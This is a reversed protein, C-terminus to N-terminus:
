VVCMEGFKADGQAVQSARTLDWGGFVDFVSCNKLTKLFDCKLRGAREMPM